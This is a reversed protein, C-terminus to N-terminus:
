VGIYVYFYMWWCALGTEYLHTDTVNDCHLARYDSARLEIRLFLSAVLIGFRTRNKIM